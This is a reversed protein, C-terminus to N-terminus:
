RPSSAGARVAHGSRAICMDEGSPSAEAGRAIVARPRWIARADPWCSFLRLFPIAGAHRRSSVFRPRPRGLRGMATLADIESARWNFIGPRGAVALRGTARVPEVAAVVGLHDGRASALVAGAVACTAVALVAPFRATTARAAAVSEEAVAWQGRGALVQASERMLGCSISRVIPM